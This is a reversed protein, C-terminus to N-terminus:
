PSRETVPEAEIGVRHLVVRNREGGACQAYTDGVSGISASNKFRAPKRSIETEVNSNRSANSSRRQQVPLKTQISRLRAHGSGPSEAGVELKPGTAKCAFYVSNYEHLHDLVMKVARERQEAPYRKAM